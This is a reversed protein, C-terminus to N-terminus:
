IKPSDHLWDASHGQGQLSHISKMDPQIHPIYPLYSAAFVQGSLCLCLTHYNRYPM